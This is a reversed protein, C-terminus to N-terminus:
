NSEVPKRQHGVLRQMGCGIPSNNPEVGADPQQRVPRPPSGGLQGKNNDRQHQQSTMPHAQSAVTAAAAAAAGRVRARGVALLGRSVGESRMPTTAHMSTPRPGYPRAIAPTCRRHRQDPRSAPAAHDHSPSAASCCFRSHKRAARPRAAHAHCRPRFDRRASAPDRRCGGHDHGFARTNPRPAIPSRDGSRRASGACRRARRTRRSSGCRRHGAAIMWVSRSHDRSEFNLMRATLRM